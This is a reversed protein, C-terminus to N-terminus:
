QTASTEGKKCCYIYHFSDPDGEKADGVGKPVTHVTVTWGYSENELYNLRAEPLGYSIMIYVGDPKLVRSAEEFMATANKTSGEGCLIADATGKDIIAEFSGEPYELACVNMQEWTMTPKDRYKETMQAIVVSSIDTNAITTYGDNYMDESLRSNGAGAMMINDSKTLYQSLIAKLNAYGQYWDFAEEEKKYREDWYSCNGYQASM